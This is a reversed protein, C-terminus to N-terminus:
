GPVEHGDRRSCSRHVGAHCRQASQSNEPVLRHLASAVLDHWRRSSPIARKDALSISGRGNAFWTMGRDCRRQPFGSMALVRCVSLNWQLDRGFHAKLAVKASTSEPGVKISRLNQAIADLAGVSASVSRRAM